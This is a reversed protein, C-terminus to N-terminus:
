NPASIAADQKKIVIQFRHSEQHPGIYLAKLGYHRLGGTEKAAGTQTKSLLRVAHGATESTLDRNKCASKTLESKSNRCQSAPAMATPLARDEEHGLISWRIDEPCEAGCGINRVTGSAISSRARIPSGLTM